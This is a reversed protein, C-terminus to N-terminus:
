SRFFIARVFSDLTAALSDNVDLVATSATSLFSANQEQRAAGQVERSVVFPYPYFSNMVAATVELIRWHSILSHLAEVGQLLVGTQRDVVGPGPGSAPLPRSLLNTLLHAAQARVCSAETADAVISFAVDWISGGYSGPRDDPPAFLRALQKAAAASRGAIKVAINLALARMEPSRFGLLAPLWQAQTWLM